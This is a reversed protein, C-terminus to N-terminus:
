AGADDNGDDSNLPPRPSQPGSVRETDAVALHKAVVASAAHAVFLVMFGLSSCRFCFNLYGTFPTSKAVLTGPRACQRRLGWESAQSSCQAKATTSACTGICTLLHNTPTRPALTKWLKNGCDHPSQQAVSNFSAMPSGHRQSCMVPLLLERLM